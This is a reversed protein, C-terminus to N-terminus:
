FQETNYHTGCNHVTRLVCMHATGVPTSAVLSQQNLNLKPNKTHKKM